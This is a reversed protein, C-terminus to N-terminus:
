DKIQIFVWTADDAKDKVMQIGVSTPTMKYTFTFNFSEDLEGIEHGQEFKGLFLKNNTCPAVEKFFSKGEANEVPVGAIDSEKANYILIKGEKDLKIAGHNFDNAQERSISALNSIIDQSVFGM